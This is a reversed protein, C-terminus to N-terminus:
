NSEKSLGNSSNSKLYRLLYSSEEEDLQAFDKMAGFLAEWEIMTHHKVNQAGHCQTCMDFYFEEHEEWVDVPNKVLLKKDITGVLEVENNQKTIPTFGDELTAILLEKADNSYIDKGDIFGNVSILVKDGLDKKITAPVGLFINAVKDSESKIKTDQFVYQLENANVQAQLVLLVIASAVINKLTKM